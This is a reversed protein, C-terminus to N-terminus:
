IGSKRYLQGFIFYFHQICMKTTKQILFRMWSKNLCSVLNLFIFVFVRMFQSFYSLYKFINQNKLSNIPM